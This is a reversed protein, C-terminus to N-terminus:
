LKGKPNYGLESIAKKSSFFCDRSLSHAIIAIIPPLKFINNFLCIIKFPFIPIRFPLVKKKRKSVLIKLYNKATINAGGLIYEEGSSGKEAALLLGKVLDEILVYNFTRRGKGILNIIGGPVGGGVKEWLFRQLFPVTNPASANFDNVDVVMSPFVTVLPLSDKNNSYLKRTSILAELKTTAYLDYNASDRLPWKENREIKGTNKFIVISSVYVLTSIQKELCAKLLVETGLVNTRFFNERNSDSIDQHVALHFVYSDKLIERMLLDKDLLDGKIVKVGSDKQWPTIGSRTLIKVDYQETLLLSVLHRGIKGNGGTVFAQKKTLTM